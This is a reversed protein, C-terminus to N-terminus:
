THSCLFPHRAKADAQYYKMMVEMSSVKCGKVSFLNDLLPDALSVPNRTDKFVISDNLVEGNKTRQYFELFPTHKLRFLVSKTKSYGCVDFLLGAGTNWFRQMLSNPPDM